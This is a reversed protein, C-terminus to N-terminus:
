EEWKTPENDDPYESWHMRNDYMEMDEPEYLERDSVLDYLDKSM